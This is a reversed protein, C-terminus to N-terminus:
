GTAARFAAHATFAGTMLNIDAGVIGARRATDQWADVAAAVEEVIKQAHDIALGHFAATAVM